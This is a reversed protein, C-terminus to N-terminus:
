LPKVYRLSEVVFGRRGYLERARTNDALTNLTLRDSGRQRAWSEAAEILATGVGQGEADASVALVSLHAHPRQNFYDVLTLLYACGCPRGDREAVFLAEGPPTRDFWEDLARRDGDVVEAATRWSPLPFAALREALSVVYARDAPVAARVTIAM